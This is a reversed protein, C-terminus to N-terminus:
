PLLSRSIGSLVVFSGREPDAGARQCDPSALRERRLQADHGCGLGFLAGALALGLGRWGGMLSLKACALAVAAFILISIRQRSPPILILM